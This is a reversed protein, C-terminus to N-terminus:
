YNYEDTVTATRSKIKFVGCFKNYNLGGYDYNGSKPDLILNDKADYIVPGGSSWGRQHIWLFLPPRKNALWKERLTEFKKIVNPKGNRVMQTRFYRWQRIVSTIPVRRLFHFDTHGKPSLVAAFLHSRPEIIDHRTKYPVQQVIQKNDCVIREIFEACSDFNFPRNRWERCKDGPRAKQTRNKHYGGPRFTPALAFVYCNAKMKEPISFVEPYINSM